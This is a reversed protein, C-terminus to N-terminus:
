KDSEIKPNLALSNIVRKTKKWRKNKKPWLKIIISSITVTATTLAALLSIITEQNELIYKLKEM